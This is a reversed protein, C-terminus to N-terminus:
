TEGGYHLRVLGGNARLPLTKLTGLLLRTLTDAWVRWVLDPRASLELWAAAALGPISNWCRMQAGPM